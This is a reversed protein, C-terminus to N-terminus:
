GLDNQNKLFELPAEFPLTEGSRVLGRRPVSTNNPTTHDPITPFPNKCLANRGWNENAFM